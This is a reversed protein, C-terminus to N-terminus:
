VHAAFLNTIIDKAINSLVVNLHLNTNVNNYVHLTPYIANLIHQM